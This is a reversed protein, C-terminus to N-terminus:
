HYSTGHMDFSCVLQGDHRLKGRYICSYPGNFCPRYSLVRVQGSLDAPEPLQEFPDITTPLATQHAGRQNM